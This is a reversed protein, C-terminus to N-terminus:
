PAVATRFDLTDGASDTLGRPALGLRLSTSLEAAHPGAMQGVGPRIVTGSGQRREVLGERGLRRYAAVVTSRGLGLRAALHREPPLRTGALLEGREIANRLALALREYLHGPASRWADELLAEVTAASSGITPLNARNM